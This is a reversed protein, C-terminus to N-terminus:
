MCLMADWSSQKATKQREWYIRQGGTSRCIINWPTLPRYKKSGALKLDKCRDSQSQPIDFSGDQKIVLSSLPICITAHEIRQCDQYVFLCVDAIQLTSCSISPYSRSFPQSIGKRCFQPPCISFVQPVVVVKWGKLRPLKAPHSM